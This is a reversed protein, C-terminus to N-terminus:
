EDHVRSTHGLNERVAFRTPLKILWRGSEVHRGRRRRDVLIRLLRAEGTVGDAVDSPEKPFEAISEGEYGQAVAKLAFTLIEHIVHVGTMHPRGAQEDISKSHM